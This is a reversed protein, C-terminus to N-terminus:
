NSWGADGSLSTVSFQSNLIPYNTCPKQPSSSGCLGNDDRQLYAQPTCSYIEKPEISSKNQLSSHTDSAGLIVTKQKCFWRVHLCVGYSTGKPTLGDGSCIGLSGLETMGSGQSYLTTRFTFSASGLSITSALM